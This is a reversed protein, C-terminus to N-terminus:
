ISLSSDFVSEGDREVLITDRELERWWAFEIEREISLSSDVVTQEILSSADLVSNTLTNQLSLKTQGVLPKLFKDFVYQQNFAHM